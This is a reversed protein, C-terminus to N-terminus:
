AAAAGTGAVAVTGGVLLPRDVVTAAAAAATAVAAGTAAAAAVAVDFDFVVFFFDVATLSSPASM